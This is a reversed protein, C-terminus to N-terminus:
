ILEINIDCVKQTLKINSHHKGFYIPLENKKVSIKAITKGEKKVVKINEILPKAPYFAKAIKQKIDENDNIVIINESCIKNLSKIIEYNVRINESLVIKSAYGQERAISKIDKELVYLKELNFLKSFMERNLTNYVRSLNLNCDKIADVVKFLEDTYNSVKSIIEKRGKLVINEDFWDFYKNVAKNKMTEFDNLIDKVAKNKTKKWKKEENSGFLWSLLGAVVGAALFGWGVPNWINVAGIELAVITFAGASVFGASVGTWKLIRGIQGESYKSLDSDEYSINNLDYQYEKHFETLKSKLDDIIETFLTNMHSDISKISSKTKKNFIQESNDEGLYEDVFAPVWQKMENFLETCRGEIRKKNDAEFNAFFKLLKKRKEILYFAQTRLSNHSEYLLKIITDVYKILSDYFTLIRRHKGRMNIEKTIKDHVFEIHSLGWLRTADEKSVNNIAWETIVKLEPHKLSKLFATKNKTTFGRIAFQSICAALASIYIIELNDIGLKRTENLIRFRHENIREHDFLNATRKLFRKLFIPDTLKDKVNLLIFFPKNIEILNSMEKFEDPQTSEDTTLFILIDSQDIVDHAKEIEVEGKFGEIGPTDLLRLGQWKYEGVEKTTHQTGLGITSGDGVKSIAERITSKGAKTRGFFTLTFDKLHEKKLEVSEKLDNLGNSTHENLQTIVNKLPESFSFNQSDKDSFIENSINNLKKVLDELIEEVEQAYTNTRNYSDKATNQCDKLTQHFDSKIKNKFLATM